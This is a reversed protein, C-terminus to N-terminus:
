LYTTTGGPSTALLYHDTNLLHVRDFRVARVRGALEPMAAM